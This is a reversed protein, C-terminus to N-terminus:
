GGYREETCMSPNSHRPTFYKWSEECHCVWMLCKGIAVNASDEETAKCWVVKYSVSPRIQKFTVWGLSRSRDGSSTLLVFMSRLATLLSLSWSEVVMVTFLPGLFFSNLPSERPPPTIQQSMNCPASLIYYQAQTLRMQIYNSIRLIWVM